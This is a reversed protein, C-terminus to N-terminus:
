GKWWRVLEGDLKNRSQDLQILGDIADGRPEIIACETLEREVEHVILSRYLPFQGLGGGLTVTVPSDDLGAQRTAAVIVKGLATAGRQLITNAVDDGAVAAHVVSQAFGVCIRHIDERSKPARVFEDHAGFEEVFVDALHTQTDTSELSRIAARIGSRGMWYGGGSDGFDAGNGDLHCAVDGHRAVVVVGGGIAASVGDQGGLAGTSWALGDDCVCVESCGTLERCLKVLETIDPVLGNLGTLSLLVTEARVDEVSDLAQRVVKVMDSGPSFATPLTHRNGHADVVRSGTQGLDLCLRSPSSPMTELSGLSQTTTLM